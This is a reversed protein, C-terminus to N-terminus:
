KYYLIVKLHKEIEMFIDSFLMKKNKCMESAMPFTLTVEYM